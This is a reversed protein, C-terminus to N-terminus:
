TPDIEIGLAWMRVQEALWLADQRSIRSSRVFFRGDESWHGCVLVEGMKFQERACLSLTEEPNMDERPGLEVVNSM